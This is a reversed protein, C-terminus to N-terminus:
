ESRLGLCHEKSLGPFDRAYFLELNGQLKAAYEQSKFNEELYTTMSPLEANLDKEESVKKFESEFLKLLSANTNKGPFYHDHWVLAQRLALENCVDWDTLLWPINHISDQYHQIKKYTEIRAADSLKCELSNDLLEEAMTRCVHASNGLVKLYAAMYPEPAIKKGM